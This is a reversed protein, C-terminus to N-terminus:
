LRLFIFNIINTHSFAILELSEFSSIYSGPFFPSMGGNNLFASRILYSSRFSFSNRHIGAMKHPGSCTFQVWLDRGWAEASSNGSGPKEEWKKTHGGERLDRRLHHRILSVKWWCERDDDKGQPAKEVTHIVVQHIIYKIIQKHKDAGSYHLNQSTLSGM